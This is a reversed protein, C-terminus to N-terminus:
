CKVQTLHWAAGLGKNDHGIYIREVQGVNKATFTFWDLQNQEFEDRSNSLPM